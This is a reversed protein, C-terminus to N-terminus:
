GACLEKQKGGHQGKTEARDANEGVRNRLARLRDVRREYEM